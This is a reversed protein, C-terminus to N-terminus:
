VPHPSINLDGVWSWLALVSDQHTTMAHPEDPRHFLAAPPTRPLAPQSGQAWQGTGSLVHYWETAPHRHAPYVLGPGMILLGVRIQNSSILGTPGILECWAEQEFFRDEFHGRYSETVQWCAQAAFRLFLGRLDAPCTLAEALAQDVYRVAPQHQKHYAPNLQRSNAQIQSLATLTHDKHAAFSDGSLRWCAMPSAYFALLAECAVDIDDDTLPAPSPM